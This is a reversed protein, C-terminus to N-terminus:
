VDIRHAHDSLGEVDLAIVEYAGADSQAIAQRTVIVVTLDVEQALQQWDKDDYMCTILVVKTFRKTDRLALIQRSVDGYAQKLPTDLVAQEVDTQSSHSDVAYLDAEWERLLAVDHNVGARLLAESLSLTVSAVGSLLSHEVSNGAHTLAADCALLLEYSSPDSFERVILNDFKGSLKWHVSRLADGPQYDRMDFVESVDNGRKKDFYTEGAVQMRPARELAVLFDLPHPYTVISDSTTCRVPANFMGLGGTLRCRARRIITRGYDELELQVPYETTARWGNEMSIEETWVTSFVANECEVEFLFYGVPVHFGRQTVTLTAQAAEGVISSPPFSLTVNALLAFVHVFVFQVAALAVLAFLLVLAERADTWLYAGLVLLVM